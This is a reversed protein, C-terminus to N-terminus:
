DTADSDGREDIMESGCRECYKPMRKTYFRQMACRSCKRYVPTGELTNRVTIWHGIKKEVIKGNEINENIDKVADILYEIDAWEVNGKCWCDGDFWFCGDADNFSGIAYKYGTNILVDKGAPPLAIESSIFLPIKNLNM